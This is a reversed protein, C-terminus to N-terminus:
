NVPSLVIALKGFTSHNYQFIVPYGNKFFMKIKNAFLYSKSVLNIHEFNMKTYVNVCDTNSEIQVNDCLRYTNKKAITNHNYELLLYENNIFFSLMNNWQTSETKKEIKNIIDFFYKSDMTVILDFHVPPIRPKCPAKKITTIIYLKENISVFLKGNFDDSMTFNVNDSTKCHKMAYYLDCVSLSIQIFHSDKLNFEYDKFTSKTSCFSFLKTYDNNLQRIQMYKNSQKDNYFKLDIIETDHLILVKILELFKDPRSLNANFTIM